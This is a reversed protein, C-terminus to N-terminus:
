STTRARTSTGPAARVEWAPGDLGSGLERDFRAARDPPKEADIDAAAAPDEADSAAPLQKLVVARVAAEPDGADSFQQLTREPEPNTQSFGVCYKILPKRGKRAYVKYRVATGSVDIDM